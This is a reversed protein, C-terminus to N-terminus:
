RPPVDVHQQLVTVTVSETVGGESVGGKTGASDKQLPALDEDFSEVEEIEGSELDNTTVDPDRAKKKRSKKRRRRRQNLISAPWHKDSSAGNELEIGSLDPEKRIIQCIVVTSVAIIVLVTTLTGDFTLSLFLHIHYLYAFTLQSGQCCLPLMTQEGFTTVVAIEWGIGLHIPQPSIVILVM